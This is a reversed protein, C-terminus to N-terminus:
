LSDVVIKPRVYEDDDVHLVLDSPQRTSPPDFIVPVQAMRFPGPTTLQNEPAEAFYLVINNYGKPTGDWLERTAALQVNRIRYQLCQRDQYIVRVSETVSSPPLELPEVEVEVFRGSDEQIPAWSEAGLILKGRQVPVPVGFGVESADRWALTGAASDYVIAGLGATTAESLTSVEVGTLQTLRSAFLERVFGEDEIEYRYANSLQSKADTSRPDTHTRLEDGNSVGDGDMDEETDAHLYDTGHVLELFDPIGDGDSDVLSGETGLLAEDCDSLFDLDSDRGPLLNACATPQEFLLPDFGTLVEVLDSIGDDDSDRRSPDTGLQREEDDGLGDYDSDVVAGNPGAKASLNAVMLLKAHLVTRINALDFAGTSVGAVNDFRQYTGSGAFAMPQAVDQVAQNASGESEAALHIVHFRLGAGGASEVSERLASVDAVSLLRECEASPAEGGDICAVDSRQCCDQAQALPEHGGALVLVVVYSTLVRLGYPMAAMDGEILARASRIGDRYHRCYSQGICPQSLALSNVAGMLEGPNRTFNGDSPAYKRARGAFGVVAIAAQPNNLTSQVFSQMVSLREGAVDYDSFLPGAAQDVLMVVRLPFRALVPDETCV